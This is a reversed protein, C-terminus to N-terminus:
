FGGLGGHCDSTSAIQTASINYDGFDVGDGATTINVMEIVNVFAPSDPSWGGLLIGRDGAGVFAPDNKPAMMEGFETTQGLSAISLKELVKQSKNAPAETLGLTYVVRVSNSALKTNRCFSGSDRFKLASGTSAINIFDDNAGLNSGDGGGSYIGRVPNGAGGLARRGVSLDGFDLADGLTTIQVYEMINEGSGSGAGGAFVSRTSSSTVGGQQRGSTLNGFDISNGESALTLYQILDLNSPWTCACLGRTSNGSQGAFQMRTTGGTLEGFTIANGLTFANIFAINTTRDGPSGIYGGFGVVRGSRTTNDVQKWFNGDWFEITKFDKNYYVMGPKVDTPRDATGGVPPMFTEYVKLSQIGGQGTTAGTSVSITQGTGTVVEGSVSGSQGAEVILDETTSLKTNVFGQYSTLSAVGSVRESGVSIIGEVDLKKSTQSTGIGIGGTTNQIFENGYNFRIEAM